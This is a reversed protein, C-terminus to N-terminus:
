GADWLGLEAAGAYAWEAYIDIFNQPWNSPSDAARSSHGSLRPIKMQILTDMCDFYIFRPTM